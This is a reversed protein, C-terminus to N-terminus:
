NYITQDQICHYFKVKYDGKLSWWICSMCCLVFPGGAKIALRQGSLVSVINVLCEELIPCSFLALPIQAGYMMPLEPIHGLPTEWEREREGRGKCREEASLFFSQLLPQADELKDNFDENHYNIVFSSIFPKNDILKWPRLNLKVKEKCVFPSSPPWSTLPHQPIKMM